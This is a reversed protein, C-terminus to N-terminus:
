EAATNTCAHDTARQLMIAVLSEENAQCAFTANELALLSRHMGWLPRREDAQDSGSQADTESRRADSIKRNRTRDVAFYWAICSSLNVHCDLSTGIAREHAVKGANRVLV